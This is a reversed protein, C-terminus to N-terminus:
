PEKLQQFINLQDPYDPLAIHLSTQSIVRTQSHYQLEGRLTNQTIVVQISGLSSLDLWAGQPIHLPSGADELPPPWSKVALPEM